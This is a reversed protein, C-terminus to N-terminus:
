THTNLFKSNYWCGKFIFISAFPPIRFGIVPGVCIFWYLVKTHSLVVVHYTLMWYVPRLPHPKCSQHPHCPLSITVMFLLYHWVVWHFSCFIYASIILWAVTCCCVYCPLKLVLCRRLRSCPFITSPVFFYSLFKDPCWFM